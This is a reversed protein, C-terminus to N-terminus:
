AAIPQAEDASATQSQYSELHEVAKQAHSAATFVAKKDKRLVELWSNIYAAHDERVKPTIDLAACLFAAGMEAVLEEQAYGADGWQKRGFDRNLRQEHRTWHVMEHGLTAYYSEQDCFAEIPPMRVYDHTISYYAKNGGHRIDAGTAAFFSELRQDRVIANEVKPEPRHYFHEPLGDIQDCNFVTYSKLYPINVEIDEGKDTTETKRFTDAYVVMTSKEGKRVRAKYKNAQRLTMWTPSQYGEQIATGWLLLINIGRYAEGTVRKPLLVRGDMHNSDWPKMWPRVGQELAQIIQNTVIAYIDKRQRNM